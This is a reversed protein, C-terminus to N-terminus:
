FSISNDKFIAIAEFYFDEGDIVYLFYEKLLIPMKIAGMKQSYTPLLYRQIYM